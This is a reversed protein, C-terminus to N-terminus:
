GYLSGFNICELGMLNECWKEYFFAMLFFAAIRPVMNKFLMMKMHIREWVYTCRLRFPSFNLPVDLEYLQPPLNCKRSWRTVVIQTHKHTNPGKGQVSIYYTTKGSLKAKNETSTACKIEYGNKLLDYFLIVKHKNYLICQLLHLSHRIVCCLICLSSVIICSSKTKM